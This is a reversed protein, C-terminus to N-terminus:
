NPGADYVIKGGVMTMVPKVDKIQDSPVTPYDRDLVVLDALKGTVAFWLTTLPRYRNAFTTDTGLGWTIGSNQHDQAAAYRLRPGRSHRSLNGAYHEAPLHLL